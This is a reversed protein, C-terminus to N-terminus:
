LDYGMDFEQAQRTLEDLVAEREAKWYVKCTEIAQELRRGRRPNGTNTPLSELIQLKMEYSYGNWNDVQEDTRGCGHCPHDGFCSASCM